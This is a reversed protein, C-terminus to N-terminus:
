LHRDIWLFVVRHMSPTLNGSIECWLPCDSADRWVQRAPTRAPDHASARDQRKADRARPQIYQCWPTGAPPPAPFGSSSRSAYATWHFRIPPFRIPIRGSAGDDLGRWGLVSFKSPSSLLNSNAVSSSAGIRASRPLGKRQPRRDIPPASRASRCTCSNVPPRCLKGLRSM